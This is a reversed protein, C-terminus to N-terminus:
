DQRESQIKTLFNAFLEKSSRQSVCKVRNVRMFEKLKHDVVNVTAGSDVLSKVQVGGVTVHVFSDKAGSSTISFAYHEKVNETNQCVDDNVDVTRVIYRSLKRKSHKNWNGTKCMKKSIDSM